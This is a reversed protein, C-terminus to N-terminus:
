ILPEGIGYLFSIYKVQFKGLTNSSQEEREGGVGRGGDEQSNEKLM